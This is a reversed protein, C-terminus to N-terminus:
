KSTEQERDISRKIQSQRTWQFYLKGDNAMSLPKDSLKDAKQVCYKTM